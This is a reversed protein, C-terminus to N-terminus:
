VCPVFPDGSVSFVASAARAAAALAQQAAPPLVGLRVEGPLGFSACDRLQVGDARLAALWRPLDDVPPRACFFNTDSPRVTWGLETCLAIQAAKWRQLTARSEALWDAVAPDCWADLMAVGHAGVPWSPALRELAAAEDEAGRPAILYAARVGTLGLAKNPSWIQWIGDAAYAWPDPEALRLPAYARDLVTFLDARAPPPTTQGLPSSPDCHWALLGAGEETDREGAQENVPQLSWARAADRYDGYGHVPLRVRRIGRQAARATLRFIAESASAAALVRGPAVGHRAALRERLAAYAPDPYRAADAQRVAAEAQPCPGVANANTSFDFRAPGTSGPGGHPRTVPPTTM